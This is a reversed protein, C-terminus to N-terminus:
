GDIRANGGTGIDVVDLLAERLYASTDTSIMQRVEVKDVEKLVAGESNKIQRVIHPEYYTGGNVLACYAAAQQIM